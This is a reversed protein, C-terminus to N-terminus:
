QIQLLMWCHAHGSLFCMWWMVTCGTHVYLLHVMLAANYIIYPYFYPAPTSVHLDFTLTSQTANSYVCRLVFVKRSQFAGVLLDAFHCMPQSHATQPTNAFLMWHISMSVHCQVSLGSWLALLVCVLVNVPALVLSRYVCRMSLAVCHTSMRSFIGYIFLAVTSSRLGTSMTTDVGTKVTTMPRWLVVVVNSRVYTCRWVGAQSGYNCKYVLM